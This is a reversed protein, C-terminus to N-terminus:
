NKLKKRIESALNSIRKESWIDTDIKDKKLGKIIDGIKIAPNIRVRKEIAEILRQTDKNKPKGRPRISKTKSESNSERGSKKNLADQKKKETEQFTSQSIIEVNKVPNTPTAPWIEKLTKGGREEPPLLFLPQYDRKKALQILDDKLVSINHYYYVAGEALEDETFINFESDSSFLKDLRYIFYRLLGKKKIARDLAGDSLDAPEDPNFPVMDQKYMERYKHRESLFGHWVVLEGKKALNLMTEYSARINNPLKHEEHEIEPKYGQWLCAADYLSYEGQKDWFDLSGYDMDKPNM